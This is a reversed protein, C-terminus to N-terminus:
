PCCRKKSHFKQKGCKRLRLLRRVLFPLCFYLYLLQDLTCSFPRVFWRYIKCLQRNKWQARRARRRYVSRPQLAHPRSFTFCVTLEQVCVDQRSYGMNLLSNEFCELMCLNPFTVSAKMVLDEPECFRGMSFGTLWWHRRKLGFLLGGKYYLEMSVPLMQSDPVSQFLTQDYRDPCAVSDACYIGIEGGTNIGYQGKWFEILWTKNGYHFYVPECDFVMHFRLATKDFLAHYGFERQWADVRSTIVDQLVSYTFGFPTILQNIICLKESLGM